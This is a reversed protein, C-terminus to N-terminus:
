VSVLEKIRKIEEMEEQLIKELINTEDQELVQTKWKKRDCLEQDDEDLDILEGDEDEKGIICFTDRDLIFNTNYLLYNNFKSVIYTSSAMEEFRLPKYSKLYLNFLPQHFFHKVDRCNQMFHIFRHASLFNIKVVTDVMLKEWNVLKIAYQKETEKINEFFVQPTIDILKCSQPLFTVSAQQETAINLNKKKKTVQIKTLTKALQKVEQTHSAQENHAREINFKKNQVSKLQTISQKKSKTSKPQITLVKSDVKIQDQSKSKLKKNSSKLLESQTSINKLVTKKKNIKIQYNPDPEEENDDFFIMETQPQIIQQKPHESLTKKLKKVNIKFNSKLEEEQDIADFDTLDLIPTIPENKLKSKKLKTTTSTHNDHTRKSGSTKQMSSSSYISNKSEKLDSNNKEVHISLYISTIIM